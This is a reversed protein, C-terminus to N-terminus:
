LHEKSEEKDQLRFGMGQYSKSVNISQQGASHKMTLPPELRSRGKKTGKQGEGGFKSIEFQNKLKTEMDMQREFETLANAPGTSGKLKSEQHTKFLQRHNHLNGLTADFLEEAFESDHVKRNETCLSLLSLKWTLLLM